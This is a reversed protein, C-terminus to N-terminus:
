KGLASRYYKKKFGDVGGGVVVEVARVVVEGKMGVIWAKFDRYNVVGTDVYM